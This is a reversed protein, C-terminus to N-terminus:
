DDGWYSRSNMTSDVKAAIETLIAEMEDVMRPLTYYGAVCRQGSQALRHCLDPDHVLRRIQKALSEANGPPFTLGTDNEVLIEDTGGTTTGIVALGAAMAELVTRAFPEEWESPFLLVDYEALLPPIKHHPLSGRLFVHRSLQDQDICKALEAEYAPDGRGFIDLTISAKVEPPLLRIADLMTRIGKEDVLRGLYVLRLTSNQTVRREAERYKEVEIGGYIIRAHSVSIGAEVLLTRVARSVCLPHCFDLHVASEKQLRNLFLKGFLQKLPRLHKRRPEAQWRQIYANPLTPWYDCFYYAVRHNLLREVLAPVSRPVNWMGWIFAVDPQFEAIAKEVRRLNEAELRHRDKLLRVFTDVLGGEAELHLLRYVSHSSEDAGGKAARSTLIRVQHGRGCLEDAVEQCWQQYGGFSHPPYTNSLFLIRM